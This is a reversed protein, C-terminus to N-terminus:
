CFFESVALFVGLFNFPFVGKEDLHQCMLLLDPKYIDAWWVSMNSWIVYVYVFFNYDWALGCAGVLVL